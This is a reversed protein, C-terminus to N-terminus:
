PSSGPPASSASRSCCTSTTSTRGPALHAADDVAAVGAARVGRLLLRRAGRARRRAGAGPRELLRDGLDRRLRARDDGAVGPRRYAHPAAAPDRRRLGPRHHRAARPRPARPRDLHTATGPVAALHLQADDGDGGAVCHALLLVHVALRLRGRWPPRAHGSAHDPRLPGRAGARDVGRDDAAALPLLRARGDLVARRRAQRLHGDARVVARRRADLPLAHPYAPAPPVLFDSGFVWGAM